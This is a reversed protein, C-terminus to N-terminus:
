VDRLIEYYLEYFLVATYAILNQWILFFINTKQTVSVINVNKTPYELLTELTSPFRKTYTTELAHEKWTQEILVIKQAVRIRKLPKYVSRIKKSCDYM